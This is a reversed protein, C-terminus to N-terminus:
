PVRSVPLHMLVQGTCVVVVGLEAFPAAVSAISAASADASVGAITPAVAAASSLLLVLLHGESLM